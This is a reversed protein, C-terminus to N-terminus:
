FAEKREEQEFVSLWGNWNTAPILNLKISLKGNKEILIGVRHYVPKERGEVNEVFVINKVAM